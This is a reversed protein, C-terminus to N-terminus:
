ARAAAEDEVPGQLLVLYPFISTHGDSWPVEVAYRGKPSISLPRTSSKVPPAQKASRCANRLHPISWTVPAGSTPWVTVVKRDADYEVLPATDGALELLTLQQVVSSALRMFLAEVSADAGEGGLVVPRGSDGRASM